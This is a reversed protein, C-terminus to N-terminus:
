KALLLKGLLAKIHDVGPSEIGDKRDQAEWEKRLLDLAFIITEVDWRTMDTLQIQKM